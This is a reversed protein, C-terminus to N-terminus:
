TNFLMTTASDNDPPLEASQIDEIKDAMCQFVILTIICSVIVVGMLQYKSNKM